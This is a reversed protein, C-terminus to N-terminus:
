EAENDESAENDVLGGGADDNNSAQDDSYPHDDTKQRKRKRTSAQNLKRKKKNEERKKAKEAKEEELMKKYIPACKEVLSMVQPEEASLPGDPSIIFLGTFNKFQKPNENLFRTVLDSNVEFEMGNSATFVNDKKKAARKAMAVPKPKILLANQVADLLSSHTELCEKVYTEFNVMLKILGKQAFMGYRDVLESKSPPKTGNIKSFVWEGRGLRKRIDIVYGVILIEM